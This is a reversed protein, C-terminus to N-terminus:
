VKFVILIFRTLRVPNKIPYLKTQIVFGKSELDLKGLYQESTGGAYMRATDIEAHGHARFEDLITQADNLNDVRVGEGFTM